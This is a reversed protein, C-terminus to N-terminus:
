SRSQLCMLLYEDEFDTIANQQYQSSSYRPKTYALRIMSEMVGKIAPDAAPLLNDMQNNMSIGLQRNRMVASATKSASRCIAGWDEESYKGGQKSSSSPTTTATSYQSAQKREREREGVTKGSGVCPKGQYVTKGNVVCTHVGAFLSQSLALIFLGLIYKMIGGHKWLAQM